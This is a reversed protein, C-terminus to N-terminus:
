FSPAGPEGLWATLVESGESYGREVLEDFRDFDLIALDRVSPQVMVDPAGTRDPQLGLEAVRALVRVLSVEHGRGRRGALAKLGDWPPLECSDSLGSAPLDRRAGVDVGVVTSGPHRERMRAVPFNELLGGDVLVDDGEPVPPFLGPIAVSARVARWLPGDEHVRAVKRSLNTSMCFYDLHLDEVDLGDSAERLGQTIRHASALSVLLAPGTELTGAPQVVEADQWLFVEMDIYPVTEWKKTRFWVVADRSRLKYEGMKLTFDGYVSLANTGDTLKWAYAYVGTVVVPEGSIGPPLIPGKEDNLYDSAISNDIEDAVATASALLGFVAAALVAFRLTM